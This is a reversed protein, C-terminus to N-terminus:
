EDPFLLAGADAPDVRGELATEIGDPLLRLLDLGSRQEVEDVSVLNGLPDADFTDQDFLFAVARVGEADWGDVVSVVTWFGSPVVHPLSTRLPDMPREYLPGAYVWVAARDDPQPFGRHGPPRRALAQEARRLVLARVAAEVAEWPGRNLAPRQPVVNSYVNVEPASASGVVAALPVLHGRDYGSGRYPDALTPNPDLTEGADLWPDRRWNRELDGSEAVGAVERVTLRYAVWDAFRTEDNSSLAYLDRVVLDNTIPTGTPYGYLFHEAHIEPVPPPGVPQAGVAAGSAVAVALLFARMDSSLPSGAVYPM